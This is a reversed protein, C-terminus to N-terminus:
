TKRYLFHVDPAPDVEPFSIWLLPELVELLAKRVDKRRLSDDTDLPSRPFSAAIMVAEADSFEDFLFESDPTSDPISQWSLM